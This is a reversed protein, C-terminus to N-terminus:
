APSEGLAPGFTGVARARMTDVEVYATGFGLRLM